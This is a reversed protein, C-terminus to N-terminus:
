NTICCIIILVQRFNCELIELEEQARQVDEENLATTEAHYVKKGICSNGTFKKTIRMPDCSLKNALYARLTVGKEHGQLKLIGLNFIEIVKNTYM